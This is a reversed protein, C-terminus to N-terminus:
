KRGKQRANWEMIAANSMPKSTDDLEAQYKEESLGDDQMRDLEKTQRMREDFEAKSLAMKKDRGKQIERAVFFFSIISFAIMWMNEPITDLSINIKQFQIPDRVAEVFYYIVMATITPRPLRNIGDILSDFWTRNQVQFESAYQAYTAINENSRQADRASQDGWITGTVKSVANGVGSVVGSILNLPNM